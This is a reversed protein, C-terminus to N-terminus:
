QGPRFLGTKESQIKPFMGLWVARSTAGFGGMRALPGSERKMISQLPSMRIPFNMELDTAPHMSWKLFVSPGARLDPLALGVLLLTGSRVRWRRNIRWLETPITVPGCTPSLPISTWYEVSASITKERCRGFWIKAGGRDLPCPASQRHLHAVPTIGLPHIHPAIDGGRVDEHYPVHDKGLSQILGLYGGGCELQHRHHSNSSWSRWKGKMAHQRLCSQHLGKNSLVNAWELLPLATTIDWTKRRWKTEHKDLQSNVLWANHKAATLQRVKVFLYFCVAAQMKCCWLTDQQQLFACHAPCNVYMYRNCYAQRDTQRFSFWQPFHRESINSSKQQSASASFRM